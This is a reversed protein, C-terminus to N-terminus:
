RLVAEVLADSLRSAFAIGFRRGDRWVIRASYDRGNLSIEVLMGAELGADGHVLAGTCSINLLHARTPRGGVTLLIPEFIKDRPSVRDRDSTPTAISRQTM